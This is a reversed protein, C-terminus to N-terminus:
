MSAREGTIRPGKILKDIIAWLLPSALDYMLLQTLLTIAPFYPKGPSLLKEVQGLLALCEHGSM